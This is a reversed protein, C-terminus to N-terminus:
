KISQRWVAYTQRGREETGKTKLPSL